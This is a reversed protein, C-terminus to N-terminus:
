IRSPHNAELKNADELATAIRDLLKLITVRFEVVDEVNISDMDKWNPM